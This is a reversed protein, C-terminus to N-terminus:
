IGVPTLIGNTNHLKEPTPFILMKPIQWKKTQSYSKEFNFFFTVGRGVMACLRNHAFSFYALNGPSVTKELVQILQTM